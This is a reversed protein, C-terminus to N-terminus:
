VAMGTRPAIRVTAGSRRPRAQWLVAALGAVCLWAFWDGFRAYVTHTERLPLEGVVQADRQVSSVEALVRGRDDSLTLRGERASRAMAFGSEVGRLIAMRSHLWDDLRFDWAPVLLLQADRAGYARGLAPFDNDKCITLGVRTGDLLTTGTGPTFRDELVPVMHQKNYATVSGHADFTLSVNREPAGAAKLDAGVLVTMGRRQAFERLAAVDPEGVRLTVEPLVAYQAGSDAFQGLVALYRAVLAEGAPETPVEPKENQLSVMGIKASGTAADDHLRWSGYGISLAITAAGVAVTRMRTRQTVAANCLVALCAAGLMVSFGIGWLGTLAAVQIVPLANMQTYALDGWTGHPSLAANGFAVATWLLPVSLMAALQQGRLALRRYLLVVAAFVLAMVTVSVLIVPLPLRIYEHLYVWQNGVSILVSIAAAFAAASTRVRTALWLVPLPALWTVWWVPELGTGFWFGAASALTAAIGLLLWRNRNSDM